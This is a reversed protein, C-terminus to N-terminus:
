VSRSSSERLSCFIKWSDVLEALMYANSLVSSHTGAGVISCMSMTNPARASVDYRLLRLRIPGSLNSPALQARGNRQRGEGRGAKDLLDDWALEVGDYLGTFM